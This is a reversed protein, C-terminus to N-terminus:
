FIIYIEPGYGSWFGKKIFMNTVIKQVLLLNYLYKKNKQQIKWSTNSNVEVNWEKDGWSSPIHAGDYLTWEHRPSWRISGEHHVWSSNRTGAPAGHSTYCLDHYTSDQRQSPAYSLARAALRFSYGMHHCCTNLTDNFLCTWGKTRDLRRCSIYCLDHYTSDQRNSPCIVTTAASVMESERFPGKSYNFHTWHM